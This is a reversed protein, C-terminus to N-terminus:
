CLIGMLDVDSDHTPPSWIQSRFLYIVAPQFKAKLRAVARELVGSPMTEVRRLMGDNLLLTFGSNEVL